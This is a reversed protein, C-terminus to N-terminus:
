PTPQRRPRVEDLVSQGANFLASLRHRGGKLEEEGAEGTRVGGNTRLYFRVRGPSPFPFDEAPADELVGNARQAARLFADSLGRVGRQQGVGLIGGGASSYLSTTGDAFVVLTAVAGSPLGLEMIAGWVRPRREEFHLSDAPVTLVQLRNETYAPAYRPAPAPPADAQALVMRPVACLVSAAAVRCFRSLTNM